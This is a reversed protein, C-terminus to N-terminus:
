ETVVVLPKKSASLLLRKWFGDVQEVGLSRAILLMLPFGLATGLALILFTGLFSGQWPIRFELWHVWLNCVLAGFTSAVSTRLLCILISSWERSRIRHALSAFLLSVLVVAVVSSSAALGLYQWRRECLWYVPLSLFMLLTGILAPTLTDHAANFGRSILNLAGRAFIGVAFLTFAAAISQFDHQSLRTHAFVLYVLPKSLIIALASIPILLLILIKLGASITQDLEEYKGEVHLQALYPYYTTGVAQGIVAVPIITLYKAYTLWTISPPLLYSGFWRIVWMDTIDVSLALMVPLALKFFLRVGPHRLNLNPTFKAGMQWVGILQLLFFGFFVGGVLGIAFSTIGFRSVFLWGFSILVVNYVIPALAPTVFKAKANQVAALVGGLCLFFQAPLLIRTLHIVRARGPPDFGPAILLVLHPALVEGLVILGILSIVMFTIVTSFVYWGEDEHDDVVYKTFVPIFIVGLVGGAVMYSVFDPLTFAAYYADTIANSGVKHAITWERFFGILRGLMSVGVVIATSKLIRGNSPSSEAL